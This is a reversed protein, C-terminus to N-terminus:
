KQKSIISYVRGNQSFKLGEPVISVIYSTTKGDATVKLWQEKANYTYTGKITLPKWTSDIQKWTELKYQGNPLFSQTADFMAMLFKTNYEITKLSDATTFPQKRFYAESKAERIFKDLLKQRDEIKYASGDGAVLKITHWKGILMKADQAHISAHFFMILLFTIAQYKM